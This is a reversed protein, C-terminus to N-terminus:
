TYLRSPISGTCQMVGTLGCCFRLLSRGGLSTGGWCDSKPYSLPFARTAFGLKDPVLAGWARVDWWVQVGLIWFLGIAALVARTFLPLRFLYARARLTSFGAVNPTPM